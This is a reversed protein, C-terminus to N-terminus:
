TVEKHTYNLQKDFDEEKTNKQKAITEKITKEEKIHEEINSLQEKLSKNKRRSKNLYELDSMIEGELDVKTTEEESNSRGLDSETDSKLPSTYIGNHFYKGM